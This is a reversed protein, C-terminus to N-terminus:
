SNTPQDNTTEERPLTIFIEFGQSPATIISLNGNLEGVRERISGLGFSSSPAACGVGNDRIRMQLKDKEYNMSVVIKDAKSHKASNNLSEQVIRYLNHSQTSTLPWRDKSVILQTNIMTFSKFTDLLRDIAILGSDEELELPKMDRVTRRVNEMSDKAYRILNDLMALTLDTNQLSAAKIAELQIILTSINHGVSDHLERSIRHRERLITLEKITASYGQLQQYAQQM